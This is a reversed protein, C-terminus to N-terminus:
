AMHFEPTLMTMILLNTPSWYSNWTQAAREARHANILANRSATSLPAVGFFAAVNDVAAEVSLQHLYEFGNNMRLRWAVTGAIQGRASVGSTTLWAANPKWGAVNPPNFLQQGLREGRWAVGIENFTLGSYHALAVMWDVPTRVLGQKAPTAYFEPRNFMARLLPKIELNNAIFGDALANIVATPGGPYAFFDWLKSTIYRASILQKAANDRLIENIIDPGDWNRTTGFFTKLDNDHQTPRFQYAYNPWLANHGTWARAAAVVDDETYNGVGLTFLEMLERAFNQNPASKVNGANSLYVLMAPEIAMRQTLERFNGLALQRYLQNQSVSHQTHYISWWASTFHGHWFLTMKEQIPRAANLMRGCWWETAFVFQNWNDADSHYSIEAPTAPTGNLSTDLINDVAAALSLASLETVRNPRAVFETRRLLHAIDAPDAV